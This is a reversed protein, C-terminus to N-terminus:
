IIIDAIKTSPGEMTYSKDSQKEILLQGYEFNIYAYDECKNYLEAIIFSSTAGTGCAKTWGVGREYTKVNITHKDIVQAFDVNIGKKFIKHHCLKKGLDTKIIKELNDTFVVAHHTTMYVANVLVNEIRQNLFTEDKTDIDLITSYYSPTGLNIKCRFPSLNTVTVRVFGNTIKVDYEKELTIKEDYCYCAFCRIGNGCMPAKTGDANYLIFELPNEKVLILGDAGIGLFRHCIKRSLSIYDINEEFRTIIFDNGLGTYKSLIM